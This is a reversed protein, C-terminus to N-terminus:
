KPDAEQTQWWDNAVAYRYGAEWSKRLEKSIDAVLNGYEFQFDLKDKIIKEAIKEFDPKNSM